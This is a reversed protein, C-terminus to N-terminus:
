DLVLMFSSWKTIFLDQKNHHVNFQRYRAILILEDHIGKVSFGIRLELKHPENRKFLLQYKIDASYQIITRINVDTVM